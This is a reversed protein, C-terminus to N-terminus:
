LAITSCGLAIWVHELLVLTERGTLKRRLLAWGFFSAACVLAVVALSLLSLERILGAALLAVLAGYFGAVGCTRFTPAERGLRGTRTRPLRDLLTNLDNTVSGPERRAAQRDRDCRGARLGLCSGM